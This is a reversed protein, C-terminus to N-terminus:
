WGPNQDITPDIAKNYYYEDTPIPFLTFQKKNTAAFVTELAPGYISGAEPTWANNEKNYTPLKLRNNPTTPLNQLIDYMVYEYRTKGAIGDPSQMRVLDFWRQGEGVFELGRENFILNLFTQKDPTTELLKPYSRSIGDAKRARDRIENFADVADQTVGKSECLAEAKILYIEALRLLFLDNENTRQDKGMPDRYKNVFPTTAVNGKQNDDNVFLPWGNFTYPWAILYKNTKTNHWYNLISKELRYDIAPIGNEVKVNKQYVACYDTETDAATSNDNYYIGYFYPHMRVHEGGNGDPSNGTVGYLTLPLMRWAWESGASAVGSNNMDRTFGIGFIVESAYADTEKNVDWLDMFDEALSYEGSNLVSDAFIVAQDFIAVAESSRDQLNLYNAYTLYAKSMFGQAAGKTARGREGATLASRLPLNNSATQFDTFIREYVEDISARPMDFKSLSTTPELRLPVGGYLRVLYFYSFARLFSAEGIIRKRYDPSVYSKDSYTLLENSINIVKYLTNWFPGVLSQNYNKKGFTTYENNVGQGNLGNEAYLDDAAMMLMLAGQLKFGAGDNMLAYAGTILLEIDAESKITSKTYTDRLEENLSCSSILISALWLPLALFIATHNIKKM